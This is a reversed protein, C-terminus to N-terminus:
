FILFNLKQIDSFRVQIQVIVTDLVEIFIQKFHQKKDPLDLSSKRTENTLEYNSESNIHEYIKSFYEEDNRYNQLTDILNNLRNKAFVVDTLKHQLVSFVIDTQGFILRFTEM